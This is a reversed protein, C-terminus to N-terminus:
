GGGPPGCSRFFWTYRIVKTTLERGVQDPYVSDTIVLPAGCIKCTKPVYDIGTQEKTLAKHSLRGFPWTARCGENLAVHSMLYFALGGVAQVTGKNHYTWGPMAEEFKSIELLHGFAMTHYHPSFRYYDRWNKRGNIYQYLKWAPGDDKMVGARKAERGIMMKAKAGDAGTEPHKIRADHYFWQGGLLGSIEIAKKFEIHVLEQFMSPNFYGDKVARATLEAIHVPAITFVIHRPLIQKKEGPILAANEQLKAAAYGEFRASIDTAKGAVYDPWCTPCSLKGCSHKTLEVPHDQDKSCTATIVWEGCQESIFGSGPKQGAAASYRFNLDEGLDIQGSTAPCRARNEPIGTSWSVFGGEKAQRIAGDGTPPSALCSCGGLPAALGGQRPVTLIEPPTM